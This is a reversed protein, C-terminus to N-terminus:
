AANVANENRLVSVYKALIYKATTSMTEAATTM